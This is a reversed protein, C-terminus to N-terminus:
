AGRIYPLAKAEAIRERMIERAQEIAESVMGPFYHCISIKADPNNEGRYARRMITCNRNMPDASRHATYFDAVDDEAYVSGGLWDAAIEEGDFKVAVCSTFAVFEGADLKAQTEGNEDDGDYRYGRERELTLSVSFRKTRFEWVKGFTGM